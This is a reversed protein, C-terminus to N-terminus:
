VKIAGGAALSIADKTGKNYYMDNKNVKGSLKEAGLIRLIYPDTHFDTLDSLKVEESCYVTCRFSFHSKIVTRLCSVNESTLISLFRKLLGDKELREYIAKIRSPNEVHDHLPKHKAMREDYIICVNAQM